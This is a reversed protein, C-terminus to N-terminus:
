LEKWSGKVLSIISELGLPLPDPVQAFDRTVTLGNNLNHDIGVAGGLLCGSFVVGNDLWFNGASIIGNIRSSEGVQVYGPSLLAAESTAILGPSTQIQYGAYLTCQNKLQVNSGVSLYDDSILTIDNGIISSNNVTINNGAVLRGPGNLTGNININHSAYLTGGGLNTTGNLSRDYFSSGNAVALQENYYAPNFQPFSPPPVPVPGRTWSGFGYVNHTPTVVVQGTVLCGSSFSVNDDVYLSGNVRTNNGFVLQNQCSAAYDLAACYRQYIAQFVRTTGRYTGEATLLITNASPGDSVRLTYSGDGFSETTGSTRWGIGKGSQQTPTILYWLAKQRGSEALYFAKTRRLAYDTNKIGTAALLVLSGVTIALGTTMIFAVLLVNGRRNNIM